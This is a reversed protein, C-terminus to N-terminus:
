LGLRELAEGVNKVRRQNPRRMPLHTNWPRDILFFGCSPNSKEFGRFVSESDDIMVDVGTYRAVFAKDRDGIARKQENDNRPQSTIIVSPHTMGHEILWEHTQQQPCTGFRSTIFYVPQDHTSLRELWDRTGKYAPLTQWFMPDNKIESYPTEGAAVIRDHISRYDALCGDIDCGIVPNAALLMSSAM